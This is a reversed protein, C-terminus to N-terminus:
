CFALPKLMFTPTVRVKGAVESGGSGHLVVDQEAEATNAGDATRALLSLAVALLVRRHYRRRGVTM